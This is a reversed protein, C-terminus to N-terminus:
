LTGESDKTEDVVLVQGAIEGKKVIEDLIGNVFKYADKEAFTKALEVAENIVVSCISNPQVLEWLAINIILRTCCGLRELEWNKLYPTIIQVFEAQRELVGQVLMYAFSQPAITLNFGYEFSAVVEDLTDNYDNRDLAYLLFLALQREDRRNANTVTFAQSDVDDEVDEEMTRVDEECADEPPFTNEVCDKKLEDM